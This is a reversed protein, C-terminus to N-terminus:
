RAIQGLIARADSTWRDDIRVNNGVRAPCKKHRDLVGPVVYKYEWRETVAHLCAAILDYEEPKYYRSCPDGQSARTKQFDMRATGDATRNRLVNKCQVTLARSGEFRLSVDAGGEIDLRVCESVGTVSALRKVLHEEAVWGRVAMKLRRASAILDLVDREPMEFERALAHLQTAAIPANAMAKARIPPADLWKEALLQRHGQDLGAAAREFRVYQLFRKTTGGVLVEVPSAEDGRSDREWGHWSKKRVEAVHHAKFEVSIFFRTPNHMEPDAGVFLGHEPSIGLLLTTYIGFPDIWLAHDKRADSGYKVQFRWEDDPRNKTVKSNAYFAYVLIGLREGTPTEFAIRFPAENRPSHKIITCGSGRLSELMFDLLPGRDSAKVKYTRYTM